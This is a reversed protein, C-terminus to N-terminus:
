GVTEMYAVLRDLAKGWGDNFGRDAHQKRGDATGHVVIAQYLSGTGKPEILIMATM